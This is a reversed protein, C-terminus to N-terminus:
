PQGGLSRIADAIDGATLADSLCYAASDDDQGTATHRKAQEVRRAQMEDAKRASDEIGRRYESPAVFAAPVVDTAGVAAEIREANGSRVAARIGDHLECLRLLAPSEDSDPYSAIRRVLEAYRDLTKLWDVAVMM